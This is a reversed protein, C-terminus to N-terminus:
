YMYLLESIPSVHSVYTAQLLKLPCLSWDKLPELWPDQRADLLTVVDACM